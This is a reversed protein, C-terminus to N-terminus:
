SHLPGTRSLRFGLDNNCYSPGNRHRYASRCGSADSVWSGGRVVRTSGSEPGHPDQEFDASYDAFWDGCWEWVNGHMDYLGWANACREGVPRTRDGANRVYSAYDGLQGEDDGFCYTTESGARCAYEWQAESLLGYTQGTQKSLWNCYAKADDWTLCVVPHKDDQDIYPNRWNADQKPEYGDKDRVWTGGEQEARTRYGTAEAFDRFEGATVPYKGVAYPGLTVAHPLQERDNDVIQTSGMRFTGGPLWIMEPGTHMGDTFTDWFSTPRNGHSVVIKSNDSDSRPEPKQGTVAGIATTPAPAQAQIPPDACQGQPILVPGDNTSATTSLETTDLLLLQRGDGQRARLYLVPRYWEDPHPETMDQQVQHLAEVLPLGHGLAQYLLRAFEEAVKTALPFPTAIVAPVVDMLQQAMGNFVDEGGRGAASKCANLVVLRVDAWKLANRLGAIGVWDVKGTNPDTFALFGTPEGHRYFGCEADGCPNGERAHSVGRCQECRWGFEGHGAFHVIVPQDGHARLAGQLARYGAPEVPEIAVRTALPTGKLGAIIEDRERLHLHPLDDDAPDSQLVLVRLREAPAPLGPIAGYLIYRGIHIDGRTLRHEHLLEWPLRLLALDREPRLELRLYLVPYKDPDATRLAAFHQDIEGALPDLLMKALWRRVQIRLQERHIDHGSLIVDTPQDRPPRLLEMANLQAIEDASFTRKLDNGGNLDLAREFLGLEDASFPLPTPDREVEGIVESSARLM